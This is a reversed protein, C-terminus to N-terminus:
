NQFVLGYLGLATAGEKFLRPLQALVERTNQVTFLHGHPRAFAAAGRDLFLAGLAAVVLHSEM